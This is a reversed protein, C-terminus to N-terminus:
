LEVNIHLKGRLLWLHRQKRNLNVGPKQALSNMVLAFLLALTNLVILSISKKM